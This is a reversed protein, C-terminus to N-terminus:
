RFWKYLNGRLFLYYVAIGVWSTLLVLAITIIKGVPSIPENLVEIVAKVGLIVGIVYIIGAAM